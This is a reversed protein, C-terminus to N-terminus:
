KRCRRTHLAHVLAAGSASPYESVSVEDSEGVASTETTMPERHQIQRTSKDRRYVCVSDWYAHLEDFKGTGYFLQNGGRDETNRFRAAESPRSILKPRALNRVDYYGTGCHLPQHIDGVLHILVRLAIRKSMGATVSGNETIRFM